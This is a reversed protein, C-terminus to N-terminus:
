QVDTASIHCSVVSIESSETSLLAASTLIPADSADMLKAKAVSSSYTKSQKVIM